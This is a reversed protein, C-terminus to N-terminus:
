KLPLQRTLEAQLDALVKPTPDSTSIMRMAAKTVLTAFDNYDARVAQVKTQAIAVDPNHARAVEIAEGITYRPAAALPHLTTLSLVSGAIWIRWRM